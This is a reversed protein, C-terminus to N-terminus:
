RVNNKIVDSMFSLTIMEGMNRVYDIARQYEDVHNQSNFNRSRAIHWQLKDNLMVLLGDKHTALLDMNKKNAFLFAKRSNTSARM